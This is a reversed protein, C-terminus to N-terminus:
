RSKEPVIILQGEPGIRFRRDRWAVSRGLFSAIFVAFSLLDRVPLLWLPAAKLRLARDIRRACIGRIALALILMATAALPAAALCLALLALPVPYTVVSGAFGAAAVLRITRAWRLEHRFLGLFSGEAVIDNVLYPSLAVRKGLKRVAQGLAHDDALMDALAEFGGAAALTAQDFVMTAGFCGAGQGLSEGVVAQPLFGHNIHLCALDSWLGGASNARYLCTVLGIGRDAVLPATIAALYDAGVRMDSDALVLLDHKVAPFMNRLNAVKLNTGRQTADVVLAIDAQPFEGILQRVVAAAPDGADAVGCVLQLMPYDQRLFSRLNEALAPDEGRLPKLITVPPQTVARPMPQRAFKAVANCAYLLYLCGVASGAILFWTLYALIQLQM